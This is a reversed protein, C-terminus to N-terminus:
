NVYTIYAKEKKISKPEKFGISPRNDNKFNSYLGNSNVYHFFGQVHWDDGGGLFKERWHSLECGKYIVM